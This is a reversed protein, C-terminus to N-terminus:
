ELFGDLEPKASKLWNLEVALEAGTCDSKDPSVGEGAAGAGFTAADLELSSKSMKELGVGAAAAGAIVGRCGLPPIIPMGTWFIPIGAWLMPNDADEVLM